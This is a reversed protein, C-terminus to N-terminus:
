LQGTEQVVDYYTCKCNCGLTPVECLAREFM